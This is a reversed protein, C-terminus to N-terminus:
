CCSDDNDKDNRQDGHIDSIMTASAVSNQACINAVTEFLRDINEGTKASTKFFPADHREAWEKADNTSVMQLELDCKNGALIIPVQGDNSSQLLQLWEDLSQFSTIDNMSFVLVACAANRFYLPVVNRFIEQGATDWIQFSFPKGSIMTTFPTVGAGVTPASTAEFEGYAARSIMTTKGVGSDGFLIARPSESM